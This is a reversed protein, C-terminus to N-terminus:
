QMWRSSRRAILNAGRARETLHIGISYKSFSSRKLAHSRILDTLWWPISAHCKLELVVPRETEERRWHEDFRTWGDRPAELQWSRTRLSEIRRDFTVRAYHDVESVYAEREYRVLLTPEAGSRAVLSAFSSLFRRAEPKGPELDLLGRAAREVDGHDVTVRTKDIVDAVRRKCELVARPSREYGRVRLKLRDPDGREKAQHFALGPSDLYLSTISYGRPLGPEARSPNHRDPRCFPEIDRQIRLATAEGVLYKLELREFRAEFSSM